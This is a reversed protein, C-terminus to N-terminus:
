VDQNISHDNYVMLTFDLFIIAPTSSTPLPLRTPDTKEAATM